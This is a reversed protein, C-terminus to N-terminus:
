FGVYRIFGELSNLADPLFQNDGPRTSRRGRNWTFTKGILRGAPNSVFNGPYSATGVLGMIVGEDDKHQELSQRTSAKLFGIPALKSGKPSVPATIRAADEVIGVADQMARGVPSEWDRFMADIAAEDIEVRPDGAAM